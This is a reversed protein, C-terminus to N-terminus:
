SEVDSEGCLMLLELYYPCSIEGYKEMIKHTTLGCQWREFKVKYDCRKCVRWRGKVPGVMYANNMRPM